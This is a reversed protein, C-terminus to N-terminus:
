HNCHGCNCKPVQSEYTGFRKKWWQSVLIRSLTWGCQRKRKHYAKRDDATGDGEEYPAAACSACSQKSPCAVCEEPYDLYQLKIEDVLTSSEVPVLVRGELKAIAHRDKQGTMFRNCGYVNRNFGLCTMFVASGCWPRIREPDTRMAMDEELLKRSDVQWAVPGYGDLAIHQLHTVPSKHYGKEIWYELLEIQQNALEIAEERDMIDEYTVNGSLGVRPGAIDVLHKMSKAYHHKTENTFTAKIGLERLPLTKLYNLGAVAKEYSGEGTVAHIRHQDHQSQFGDISIGIALHRAYKEVIERNIQKDFLTGNTSVSIIYPREYREALKAATEIATLLLKPQMFPEGGIIDIIAGDPKPVDKDREFCAHLFDVIDQANNNKNVKHEYCYTCALNCSLNTLIQYTRDM